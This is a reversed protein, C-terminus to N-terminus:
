IFSKPSVSPDRTTFLFQKLYTNSEAFDSLNLELSGLKTGDSLVAALTAEKAKYKSAASDFEFATKM